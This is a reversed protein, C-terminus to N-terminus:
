CCQVHLDTSFVGPCIRCGLSASENRYRQMSFMQSLAPPKCASKSKNRISLPKCRSCTVADKRQGTQQVELRHGPVCRNFFCHSPLHPSSQALSPLVIARRAASCGCICLRSHLLKAAQGTALLHSHGPRSRSSCLQLLRRHMLHSYLTNLSRFSLM